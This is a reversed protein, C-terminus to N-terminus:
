EDAADSTYLLCDGSMATAFVWTGSDVVQLGGDGSTLVHIVDHEPSPASEDYTATFAIRVGDDSVGLNEPGADDHEALKAFGARWAADRTINPDECFSHIGPDPHNALMYRIGRLRPSTDAHAAFVAEVDDGLGLDAHAVVASLMPTGLSELWRTEGVPGMPGAEEWGAQIHVFGVVDRGGTDARYDAPLYDGLVHEGSGFFGYLDAPFLRQAAWLMLRPHWGLLKM